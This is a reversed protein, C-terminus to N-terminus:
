RKGNSGGNGKDNFAVIPERAMVLSVVHLVPYVISRSVGYQNHVFSEDAYSLPRLRIYVITTRKMHLLNDSHAAYFNWSQGVFPTYVRRFRFHAVYSVLRFIADIQLIGKKADIYAMQRLIAFLFYFWIFIHRATFGTLWDTLWGNGVVSLSRGHSCLCVCVCNLPSRSCNEECLSLTLSHPIQHRKTKKKESNGALVLWSMSSYHTKCM